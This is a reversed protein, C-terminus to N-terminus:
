RTDDAADSTYLLCLYTQNFFTATIEAHQDALTVETITGRRNRMPRTNVSEITAYVIATQGAELRSIETVTGPHIYTRPFYRLLEGVSSVGLKALAKEDRSSVFDTLPKM